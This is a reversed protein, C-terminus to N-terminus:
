TAPDVPPPLTHVKHAVYRAGVNVKRGHVDTLEWAEQVTRCPMGSMGIGQQESPIHLQTYMSAM